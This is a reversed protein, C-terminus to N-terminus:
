EQPHAKGKGKRDFLTSVKTKLETTVKKFKGRKSTGAGRITEQLDADKIGLEPKHGGRRSSRRSISTSAEPPDNTPRSSSEAPLGTPLDITSSAAIKIMPPPVRTVSYCVAAMLKIFPVSGEVDPDHEIMPSLQLRDEAELKWLLSRRGSTTIAMSAKNLTLEELIQVAMHIFAQTASGIIRPGPAPVSWHGNSNWKPDGQELILRFKKYGERQFEKLIKKLAPKALIDDVKVEIILKRELTTDKDELELPEELKRKKPTPKSVKIVEPESVLIFDPIGSYPKIASDTEESVSLEPEKNVKPRPYAPPGNKTKPIPSLCNTQVYSDIDETKVVDLSKNAKSRTHLSEREEKTLSNKERPRIILSRMREKSENDPYFESTSDVGVRRQLIDVAAFQWNELRGQVSHENTTKSYRIVHEYACSLDLLVQPTPANKKFDEDHAEIVNLLKPEYDVEFERGVAAVLNFTTSNPKRTTTSVQRTDIASMIMPSRMHNYLFDNITISM